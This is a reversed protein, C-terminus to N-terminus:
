SRNTRERWGVPSEGKKEIMVRQDEREVGCSVLREERDHGAPGRKEIMVRQDERWGVPSEGKKEIM